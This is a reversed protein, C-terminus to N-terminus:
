CVNLLRLFANSTLNRYTSIVGVLLATGEKAINLLRTTPNRQMLLLQIRAVHRDNWNFVVSHTANLRVQSVNARNLKVCFSRSKIWFYITRVICDASKEKRLGYSTFSYQYNQQSLFMKGKNESVSYMGSICLYGYFELINFPSKHAETSPSM